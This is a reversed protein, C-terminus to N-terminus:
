IKRAHRNTSWNYPTGSNTSAEITQQKYWEDREQNVTQKLEWDITECSWHNGQKADTEIKMRESSIGAIHSSEFRIKDENRKM